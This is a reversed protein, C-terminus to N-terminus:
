FKGKVHTLVGYRQVDFHDLADNSAFSPGFHVNGDRSFLGWYRAGLGVEINRTVAYNVFVETEVGYAYRSDTIVNPAPGLDSGDQRLLHSDKNQVVAYPIAAFEGSVSWRDDIAFRGEVGIRVAHWTPEYTFVATDYGVPVSGISSCGLAPQNQKCYLGFATAKENWYHYGAFVGFKVGGTPSYAWGVDIMAFTLNGNQVQSRTDSFKAQGSFFDKDDIYGATIAGGGVVGKVFLGSPKHDVRAFAEGSHGDMNKWDLTSTPTGFAPNGNSFAFRYNGSSYWYRAGAEFAFPSPRSTEDLAEPIEKSPAKPINPWQATSGTVEVNGFEPAFVSKASAPKATAPGPNQDRNVFAPAPDIPMDDLKVNPWQATSGTVEPGSTEQTPEQGSQKVGQKASAKSDDQFIEAAITPAHIAPKTTVPHAPLQDRDIFAPQPNPRSTPLDETPVNPWQADSGEVAPWQPDAFRDSEAARAVAAATLALAITVVTLLVFRTM